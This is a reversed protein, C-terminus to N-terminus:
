INYKFHKRDSLMNEVALVNLVHKVSSSLFPLLITKRKLIAVKRYFKLIKTRFSLCFFNYVHSFIPNSKLDILILNIEIKGEKM